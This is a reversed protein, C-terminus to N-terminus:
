ESLRESSAHETSQTNTKTNKRICLIKTKESTEIQTFKSYHLIHEFNKIAFINLRENQILNELDM